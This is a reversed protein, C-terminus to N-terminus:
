EFLLDRLQDNRWCLRAMSEIDKNEVKAADSLAQHLQNKIQETSLSFNLAEANEIM